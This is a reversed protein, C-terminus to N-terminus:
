DQACRSRQDAGVSPLQRVVGAPKRPGPAKVRRELLSSADFAEPFRMRGWELSKTRARQFSFVGSSKGSFKRNFSCCGFSSDLM